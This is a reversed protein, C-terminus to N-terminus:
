VRRPHGATASEYQKRDLPCGAPFIVPWEDSSLREAFAIMGEEPIAAGAGWQHVRRRWEPTLQYRGDAPPPIVGARASRRVCGAMEDYSPAATRGIFM